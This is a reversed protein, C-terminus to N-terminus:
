SIRTTLTTIRINLHYTKAGNGLFKTYIKSGEREVILFDNEIRITYTENGMVLTYPPDIDFNLDEIGENKIYIEKKGSLVINKIDIFNIVTYVNDNQTEAVIDLYSESIEFINNSYSKLINGNRTMNADLVNTKVELSMSLTKLDTEFSAISVHYSSAFFEGKDFNVNLSRSSGEGDRNVEKILSDINLFVTEASNLNKVDKLENLETQGWRFALAVATIVIAFLIAYSLIVSVGKKNM